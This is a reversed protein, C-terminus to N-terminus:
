FSIFPIMHEVVTSFSLCESVGQEIVFDIQYQHMWSISILNALAIFTFCFYKVIWNGIEIGSLKKIMLM